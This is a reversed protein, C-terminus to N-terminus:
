SHMRFRYRSDISSNNYDCRVTPYNDSICVGRNECLSGFLNQITNGVFAGLAAVTGGATLLTHFLRCLPKYDIKYGGCATYVANSRNKRSVFLM